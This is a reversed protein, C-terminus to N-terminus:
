ALIGKYHYHLIQHIRINIWNLRRIKDSV